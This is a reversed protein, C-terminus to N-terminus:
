TVVATRARADLADQVATKILTRLIILAEPSFEEIRALVLGEDTGRLPAIGTGAVVRPGDM